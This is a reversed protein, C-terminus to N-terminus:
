PDGGLLRWVEPASRRGHEALIARAAPLDVPVVREARGIRVMTVGYQSRASVTRTNTERTM